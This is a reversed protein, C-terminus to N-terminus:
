DEDAVARYVLVYGRKMDKLYLRGRSVVPVENSNQEVIDYTLGDESVGLVIATHHDADITERTLWEHDQDEHEIIVDRMQVVDGPLVQRRDGKEVGQKGDMRYGFVLKGWVYDGPKPSDDFDDPSKAGSDLIARYALDACEGTGVQKGIFRKCYAVIRQNFPSSLPPTDATRSVALVAFAVCLFLATLRRVVRIRWM